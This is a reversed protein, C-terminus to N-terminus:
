HSKRLNLRANRRWGAHGARRTSSGQTLRDWDEESIQALQELNPWDRWTLFDREQTPAARLPQSARPANFPCVEQCIDCGYTWGELRDSLEPAIEGRHEITLYSICRRADIQWRGAEHVIAGTPCAEVCRKCTGCGGEAPADPELELTTLVLGLFFWSGRHSDILCTNKGFWGLGARHAYEREPIPASDVCIRTKAGTEELRKALPRLKQRLVRHYDRGLAYRAIKPRDAAELPPDQAYNLGLAIVSQAGPLLHKPDSRILRHRALYEMTGHYGKALWADYHALSDPPDARCIGVLDFGQARAFAKM